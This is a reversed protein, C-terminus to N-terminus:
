DEILKVDLQGDVKEDMSSIKMKDAVNFEVATFEKKANYLANLKNGTDELMNQTKDITASFLDKPLAKISQLNGLNIRGGTAIDNACQYALRKVWYDEEHQDRNNVLEKLDHEQSLEELMKEYIKIEYMTHSTQHDIEKIKWDIREATALHMAKRAPSDTKEADELEIAKELEKQKKRWESEQRVHYRTDLELMIQRFERWPNDHGETKIVFNRMQFESMGFSECKEKVTVYLDEWKRNKVSDDLKDEFKMPLNDSM